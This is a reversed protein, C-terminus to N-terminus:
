CTCKSSDDNGECGPVPENPDRQYCILGERCDDNTDCDGECLGCKNTETCYDGDMGNLQPIMSGPTMPATPGPTLAPTHTHGPTAIPGPTPAPASPEVMGPETTNAAGQGPRSSMPVTPGPTLVPMTHGLTPQPAPGPTPVTMPGPTPQAIPGPTPAPASPGVTSPETTNVAGLGPTPTLM